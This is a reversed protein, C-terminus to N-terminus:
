RLKHIAITKNAPRTNSSTVARSSAASEPVQRPRAAAPVAAATANRSM